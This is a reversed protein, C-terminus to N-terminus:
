EKGETIFSVVESKKSEYEDHSTVTNIARSIDAASSSKDVYMFCAVQHMKPNIIGIYYDMQMKQLMREAKANRASITTHVYSIDTLSPAKGEFDKYPKIAIIAADENVEAAKMCYYFDDKSIITMTFNVDCGDYKEAATWSNASTRSVVLDMRQGRREGTEIEHHKVVDVLSIIFMAFAAMLMAVVFIAAAKSSASKNAM